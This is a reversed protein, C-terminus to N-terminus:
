KCDIFFRKTSHAQRLSIHVKTLCIALSNTVWNTLNVILALKDVVWLISEM